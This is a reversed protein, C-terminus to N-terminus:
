ADLNYWREIQKHLTEIRKNSSNIIDYELAMQKDIALRRANILETENRPELTLAFLTTTKGSAWDDVLAKVLEDVLEIDKAAPFVRIELTIPDDADAQKIDVIEASARLTFRDSM